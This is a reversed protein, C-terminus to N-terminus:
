EPEKFTYGVGRVTKLWRGMLGLKKRLGVIQFDVSRDTVPYDSGRIADIIQSRTYVWGIRRALFELIQFETYTLDVPKGVVFVERRQSSLTLDGIVLLGEGPHQELAPKRRLLASIRALLIRPSFPKTLYDDAGLELGRVIDEERGLATLMLIAISETQSNRKMLRCVDLGSMRPLMLDLIVLAPPNAIMIKWAQEGTEAEDVRYQRVTLHHVVLSRIDPDDEVVLIHAPHQM